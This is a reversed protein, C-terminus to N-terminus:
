SHMAGIRGLGFQIRVIEVKRDRVEALFADLSDFLLKM